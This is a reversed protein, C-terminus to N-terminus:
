STVKTCMIEIERDREGVNIVSDIDYNMDNYVVRMKPTIGDPIDTSTDIYRVRFRYDVNSLSQRATFWERGQIPNVSAWCSHVTAWTKVQEGFENQTATYKQILIRENLKGSNM